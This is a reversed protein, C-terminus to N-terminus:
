FIKFKFQVLQVVESSDLHFYHLFYLDVTTSALVTVTLGLPFGSTKASARMARSYHYVVYILLLLAMASEPPTDAFIATVTFAMRLRGEQIVAKYQGGKNIAKIAFNKLAKNRVKVVMKGEELSTERIQTPPAEDAPGQQSLKAEILAKTM